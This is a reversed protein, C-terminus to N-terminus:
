SVLNAGSHNVLPAHSILDGAGMMMLMMMLLVMVLVMIRKVQAGTDVYASLWTGAVVCAVRLM